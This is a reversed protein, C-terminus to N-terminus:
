AKVPLHDIANGCVQNIREYRRKPKYRKDIRNVHIIWSVYGGVIHPTDVIFFSINDGRLTPYSDRDFYLLSVLNSFVRRRLELIARRPYFRTTLHGTFSCAMALALTSPIIVSTYGVPDM